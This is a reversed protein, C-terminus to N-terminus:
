GCGRKVRCNRAGPKMLQFFAYPKFGDANLRFAYLTGPGDNCSINTIEFRTHGQVNFSVEMADGGVAQDHPDLEIHLKGSLAGGRANTVEITLSGKAM